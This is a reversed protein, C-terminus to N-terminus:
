GVGARRQLEKEGAETRVDATGTGARLKRSGKVMEEVFGKAWLGTPM